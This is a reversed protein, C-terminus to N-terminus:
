IESYFHVIGRLSVVLFTDSAAYILWLLTIESYMCYNFNISLRACDGTGVSSEEPSLSM